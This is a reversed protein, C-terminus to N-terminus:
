VHPQDKGEKHVDNSLFGYESDEIDDEIGQDFEEVLAEDYGAPRVETPEKSERILEPLIAKLIAGFFRGIAALLESVTDSIRLSLVRLM